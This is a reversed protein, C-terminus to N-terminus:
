IKFITQYIYLSCFSFRSYHSYITYHITIDNSLTQSLKFNNWAVITAVRGAAAEIIVIAHPCKYTGQIISIEWNYDTDIHQHKYTQTQAKM